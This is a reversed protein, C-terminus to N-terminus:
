NYAPVDAIITRTAEILMLRLYGETCKKDTKRTKQIHVPNKCIRLYGMSITSLTRTVEIPARLEFRGGISTPLSNSKEGQRNTM